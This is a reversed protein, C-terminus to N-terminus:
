QHEEDGSTESLELSVRTMAFGFAFVLLSVGTLIKLCAILRGAGKPAIDGYGTTTITVLSFYTCEWWDHPNGDIGYRLYLLPFFVFAALLFAVIVGVVPAYPSRRLRQWLSLAHDTNM